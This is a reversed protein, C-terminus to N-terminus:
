WKANQAYKSTGAIRWGAYQFDTDEQLQGVESQTLYEPCYWMKLKEFGPNVVEIKGDISATVRHFDINSDCSHKFRTIALQRCRTNDPVQDLLRITHTATTDNPYNSQISAYQANGATWDDANIKERLRWTPESDTCDPYENPYSNTSIPSAFPRNIIHNM